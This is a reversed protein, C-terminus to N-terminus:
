LTAEREHTAPEPFKLKICDPEPQWLVYDHASLNHADVYAAPVTLHLSNGVRCLKLYRPLNHSTM